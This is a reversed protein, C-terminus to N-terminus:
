KYSDILMIKGYYPNTYVLGTVEVEKGSLFRSLITPRAIGFNYMRNGELWIQEKDNTNLVPKLYIEAYNKSVLDGTLTMKGLVTYGNQATENMESGIEYANHDFEFVKELDDQALKSYKIELFDTIYIEPVGASLKTDVIRVPLQTEKDFYIEAKYDSDVYTYDSAFSNYKYNFGILYTDIEKGDILIKEEKYESPTFNKLVYSLMEEQVLVPDEFNYDAVEKNLTVKSLWGTGPFWGPGSDLHYEINENAYIYYTHNSYYRTLVSGDPQIEEKKTGEPYIEQRESKYRQSTLDLTFIVKQQGSVDSTYAYPSNDTELYTFNLLNMGERIQQLRTIADMIISQASVKITFDESGRQNLLTIGAIVVVTLTLTLFITLFSKTLWSLNNQPKAFSNFIKKDMIDIERKTLTSDKSFKNFIEM